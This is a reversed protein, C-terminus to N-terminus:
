RHLDIVEKMTKVVSSTMLLLGLGSVYPYGDVPVKATQSDPSPLLSPTVGLSSSGIPAPPLTVTGAVPSLTTDVGVVAQTSPSVSPAPVPTSQSNSPAANPSITPGASPKSTAGPNVSSVPSPFQTPKLTPAPTPNATVVPSPTAVPVSIPWPKGSAAIMAYSSVLVSNDWAGNSGQNSWLFDLPTNGSKEWNGGSTNIWWQVWATSAVSSAGSSIGFGGDDNQLSRIYSEAKNKVEDSAYPKLAILAAATLDSSSQSQKYIGWGGDGNQQNILNTTISTPASEGAARLAIVGFIDDNLLDAEGIQNASIHGRLRAVADVGAFTKPNQGVAVLAIIQRAADTAPRKSLEKQVQELAILSKSNGVGCSRLGMAAWATVALGGISGHSDQQSILYNAGSTSSARVPIFGVCM